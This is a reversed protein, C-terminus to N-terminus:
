GKFLEIWIGNPDEVFAWRNTDTRVESRVPYGMKRAEILAGDLDSVSFGLHDLGEGVVYQSSYPSDDDYHNLEIEFKGDSSLLSVVDGKTQEIRSRGKEKMGLFGTYFALSKELDKVRIGVYWFKADM